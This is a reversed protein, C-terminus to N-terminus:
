SAERVREVVRLCHNALLLIELAEDPEEIGQQEHVAENRYRKLAGIFLSETASLSGNVRGEPPEFQQFFKKVLREGYDSTPLRAKERMLVEVVKFAYAIAIDYDGRLYIGWVKQSIRSDLVEYLSVASRRYADFGNENLSNALRTLTDFDEPQNPHPALLGHNQLWAYAELLPGLRPRVDSLGLRPGQERLLAVINHPSLSPMSASLDKLLVGAMEAPEAAMWAELSPYVTRLNMFPGSPITEMSALM